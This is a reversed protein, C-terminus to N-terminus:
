PVSLRPLFVLFVVVARLLVLVVTRSAHQVFCCWSYRDCQATASNRSVGGCYCTSTGAVVFVFTVLVSNLLLCYCNMAAHDLLAAAPIIHCLKAMM